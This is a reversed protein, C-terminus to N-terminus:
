GPVFCDDKNYTFYVQILYFTGKVTINQDMIHVLIANWNYIIRLLWILIFIIYVTIESKSSDHFTKGLEKEESWELFPLVQYNVLFM